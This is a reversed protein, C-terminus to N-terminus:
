RVVLKATRSGTRLIYVGKNWNSVDLTTEVSVPTQMMTRGDLAYVTLTQREGCGTNVKVMGNAPNPFVKIPARLEEAQRIDVRRLAENVAALADIQAFPRAKGVDGGGHKLCQPAALLQIASRKVAVDRQALCRFM